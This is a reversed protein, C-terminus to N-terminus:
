KAAARGIIDICDLATRPGLGLRLSVSHFVAEPNLVTFVCIVFFNCSNELRWVCVIV